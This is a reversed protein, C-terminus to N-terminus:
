DWCLTPKTIGSEGTSPFHDLLIKNMWFHKQINSTKAYVFAITKNVTGM